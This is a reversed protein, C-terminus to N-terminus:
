QWQIRYQGKTQDLFRDFDNLSLSPPLPYREKIKDLLDIHYRVFVAFDRPYARQSVGVFSGQKKALKLIRRWEEISVLGISDVGHSFLMLYIEDFPDRQGLYDRLADASPEKNFVMWFPNSGTRLTWYPEMLIFSEVLLRRDTIGRQNNWWAYLDAVLPSMSEPEDFLLRRLRFGNREAFTAVDSLLAPEFGWEAEPSQGDPVPAQWRRRHSHYRKLYEEVRHGGNHYEDPTAGGLAGFQFLHREGYRTTPWKLGCEVVFITGGPELAQKIFSEYVNGLRLLKVRFYTMRQIMLRDQNLDNMHHLQIDPNADLLIRAPEAAWKADDIPEDPHIGSRAVPILFTQPLWPVGLAAWLHTAAGNSSGVAVAPYQRRPYLSAMWAAVDDSRFESLRKPSLAEFWGGWIYVQERMPLPMRNVMGGILKM